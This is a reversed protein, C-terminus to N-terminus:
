SLMSFQFLGIIDPKPKYVSPGFATLSTRGSKQRASPCKALSSLMHYEDFHSLLVNRKEVKEMETIAVSVLIASSGESSRYICYSVLKSLWYRGEIRASM